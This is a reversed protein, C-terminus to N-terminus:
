VDDLPTRTPADAKANEAELEQDDREDWDTKADERTIGDQAVETVKGTGYKRLAM